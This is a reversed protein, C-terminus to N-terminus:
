SKRYLELKSRSVITDQRNLMACGLVRGRLRTASTLLPAVALVELIAAKTSAFTGQARSRGVPCTPGTRRLCLDDTRIESPAGNNEFPKPRLIKRFERPDGVPVGVSERPIAWIQAAAGWECHRKEVGQRQTSSRTKNEVLDAGSLSGIGSGSRGRPGDRPGDLAVQLQM